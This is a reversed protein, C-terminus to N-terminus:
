YAATAIGIGILLLIAPLNVSLLNVRRWTLKTAFYIALIGLPWIIAGVRALRRLRRAFRLRGELNLIEETYALLLEVPGQSAPTRGRNTPPMAFM